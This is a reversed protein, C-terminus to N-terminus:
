GDAEDNGERGDSDDTAETEESQERAADIYSLAILVYEPKLFPRRQPISFQVDDKTYIRHSTGRQRWSFGEAVLAVDLEDPRVNKPNRRMREIRKDRKVM